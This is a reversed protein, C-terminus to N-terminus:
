EKHDTNKNAIAEVSTALSDDVIDNRRLIENARNLRFAQGKIMAIFWNPLTKM